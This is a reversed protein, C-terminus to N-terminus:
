VSILAKLTKNLLKRANFKKKKVHVFTVVYIIYCNHELAFSIKLKEDM